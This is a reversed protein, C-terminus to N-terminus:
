NVSAKDEDEGATAAEAHKQPTKSDCKGDENEKALCRQFSSSLHPVSMTLKTRTSAQMALIM